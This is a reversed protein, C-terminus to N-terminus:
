FVKNLFEMLKKNARIEDAYYWLLFCIIPPLAMIRASHYDGLLCFDLPPCLIKVILPHNHYDGLLCFDLPPILLGIFIYQEFKSMKM